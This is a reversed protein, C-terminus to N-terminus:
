EAVVAVDYPKGDPQQMLIPSSVMFHLGRADSCDIKTNDRIAPLEMGADAPLRTVTVKAPATLGGPFPTMKGPFTSCPSKM